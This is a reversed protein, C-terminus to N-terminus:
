AHSGLFRRVADDFGDAAQANVAHGADLEVVELGAIATRAHEVSPLFARERRGVVLLTPVATAAVRCRVSSAPVTHEFTKALGEPDLLEADAVLAGAVEPPLRKAQRPHIPLSDLAARGRARVDDVLPPLSREIGQRWGEDALASASNTFVSAIVRDPHDLVYRLTLAAGLSQGCVAWRDVGLSRRIDDFAAVYGDPTYAAPDDPALSRGHGHLEVVVPRSVEQLAPLNLLWQARSSLIGHVLLLYPGDGEHVEVNM